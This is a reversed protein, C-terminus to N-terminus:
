VIAWRAWRTMRKVWKTFVALIELLPDFGSLEEGWRFFTVWVEEFVVAM